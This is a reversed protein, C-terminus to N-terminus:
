SSSSSHSCSRYSTKQPQALPHPVPAPAHSRLQIPLAMAMMWDLLETSQPIETLIGLHASVSQLDTM